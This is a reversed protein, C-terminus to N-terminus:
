KPWTKKMGFGWMNLYFNFCNRYDWKFYFASSEGKTDVCKDIEYQPNNPRSLVM